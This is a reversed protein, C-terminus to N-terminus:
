DWLQKEKPQTPATIGCAYRLAAIELRDLPRQDAEALAQACHAYVDEEARRMTEDNM